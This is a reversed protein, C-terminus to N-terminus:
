CVGGRSRISLLLSIKPEDIPLRALKHIPRRLESKGVKLEVVRVLGDEGPFVGTVRGMLWKAPPMNDEKVLVIDNVQLNPHADHWKFRQQLQNLYDRSWRKWFQNLLRVLLQYRDLRNMPVKDSDPEPITNMPQGILFHGPTLCLSEEGDSALESLPRSNLCCEIQTILTSFEEFGMRANGVIRKLHYKLSRVGAEWLGGFHPAHSPIFHWKVELKLLEDAIEQTQKACQDRLLNPLENSAGVFNTGNDTYVNAPIGRRAIFRKFALLFKKASLDTVLEVHIAKTALCVFLAVYCKEYPANRRNSTKVEFYGAFDIGVNNFPRCRNIRHAPLQGM